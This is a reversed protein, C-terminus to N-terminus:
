IRDTHKRKFMGVEIVVNISIRVTTAAIFSMNLLCSCLIGPRSATYGPLFRDVNQFFVTDKGTRV